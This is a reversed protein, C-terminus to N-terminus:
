DAKNRKLKFLGLVLSVLWQWILVLWNLRKPKPEPRPGFIGKYIEKQKQYVAKDHEAIMRLEKAIAKDEPAFKRAKQFDERAADTQGLEARAKGRRFLAKVNNEDESLVISCQAIAEEYRELKIFCAAMNLHCPNKVALAMDRYKGFLQFMFDDGMYAVAMEYQQMAEELKEDKFYANGEAKRRDAAEIREEVTMDSRAKGEKAEDFGILEVEYLLDAMPPVNPFSFSGEKGYGLEWSVHLLAREGAKMSSVGIGLGAMQAKEKGLILEVPRQEQWTDEFKHMTNEVWARYHVFCTSFKIPKQGHGEKMIQKTVKEHLIEVESDAKPPGETDQPPEGHVFAAQEAVIENDDDPGKESQQLSYARAQSDEM